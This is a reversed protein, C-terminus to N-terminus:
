ADSQGNECNKAVEELDEDKIGSLRAAVEYVRDVARGGKKGLTAIDAERFMRKGDQDVVCLSCLRARTNALNLRIKGGKRQELRSQEFTDLEAASLGRVRVLGGWESVDVDETPFHDVGLIQERTLYAM